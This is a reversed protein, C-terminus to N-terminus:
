TSGPSNVAHLCSPVSKELNHRRYRHHLNVVERFTERWAVGAPIDPFSISIGLDELAARMHLQSFSAKKSLPDGNHWLAIRHILLFGYMVNWATIIWLCSRWSWWCPMLKVTRAGIMNWKLESLSLCFTSLFTVYKKWLKNFLKRQFVIFM